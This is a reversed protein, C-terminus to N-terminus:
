EGAKLRISLPNFGFDQLAFLAYVKEGNAIKKNILNNYVLETKFRTNATGAM